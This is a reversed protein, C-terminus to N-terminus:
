RSAWDSFGVRAERGGVDCEQLRATWAQFTEFRCKVKPAWPDKHIWDLGPVLLSIYKLAIRVMFIALKVKVANVFLVDWGLM